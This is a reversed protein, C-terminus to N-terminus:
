LIDDFDILANAPPDQKQPQSKSEEPIPGAARAAQLFLVFDEEELCFGAGLCALGWSERVAFISLAISIAAVLSHQATAGQFSRLPGKFAGRL